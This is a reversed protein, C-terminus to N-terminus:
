RQRGRKAPTQEGTRIADIVDDESAGREVMQERAHTSFHIPKM